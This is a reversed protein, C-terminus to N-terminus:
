VVGEVEIREIGLAEAILDITEDSVQSYSQQVKRVINILRNRQNGETAAIAKIEGALAKPDTEQM